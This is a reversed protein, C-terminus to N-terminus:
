ATMVIARCSNSMCRGERITWSRTSKQRFVEELTAWLMSKSGGKGGAASMHARVLTADVISDEVDDHLEVELAAFLLEWIGAKSWNNFRNYVSKWPGFREPMDRWPIGTKARYLVAEIFTRDGLIPKPGPRAPDIISQIKAWQEDTLTHRRM